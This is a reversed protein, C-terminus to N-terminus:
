RLDVRPARVCGTLRARRVASGGIRRRPRPSESVSTPTRTRTLTSRPPTKSRASSIGAPVSFNTTNFSAQNRLVLNPASEVLIGTAHDTVSNGEIRNDTGTVRLGAGGNFACHNNEARSGGGILIGEQANFNALCGRVVSQNTAVIGPGANEMATCDVILSGGMDWIGMFRNLAATCNQIRASGTTSIGVGNGRAATDRVVSDFAAFVGEVANSMSACGIVVSGEEVAIGGGSGGGPDGNAAAVCHEILAGRGAAIGDNGVTANGLATCRSIRARDGALIGRFANSVALCDEVVGGHGVLLGSGNGVAQLGELVAAEANTLSVAAQGWGRITGNRIRVGRRAAPAHVANLSGSVGLLAFGNLDVRVQDANITIGNQGAVGVLNTTLYYSGANTLTVPLAALPTRPEIQSLTKMTPAPAGPPTLSGQATASPAALALGLGPVLAALFPPKM